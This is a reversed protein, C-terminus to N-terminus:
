IEKIIYGQKLYYHKRLQAQRTATKGELLIDVVVPDLKDPNKRIIRGILQELLPENNIPTALVLCSLKNISIGEAFINTSGYLIKAKGNKVKELLEDRNKTQGIICVDDPTACKELLSTRASVVLVTHGKKAYSNAVLSIYKQYDESLCLDNIKQAWSQTGDALRIPLTVRHISPTVYNEKPPTFTKKGFYDSFLIHLGDKRKSSASLGIKYKAHSTDIIESFTKSPIHHSEDIILTGFTKSLKDKPLKTLSQINGITIPMSIDFQGGGIISPTFGYVKRVEEVWQDKLALTHVVVLTKQELKGAIALATFTKGFSTWANIFADSNIKDYIEQQSPRLSFAFEPFKVPVEVRKDIIEYYEPILDVRGSPISMLNPRITRATVIVRPPLEPRYAPISYTLEKFINDELEKTTDIYIRNTIVAKM